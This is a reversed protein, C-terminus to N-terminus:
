GRGERWARLEGLIALITADDTARSLAATLAAVIQTKLGGGLAGTEDWLTVGGSSHPNM